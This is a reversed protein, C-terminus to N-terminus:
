DRSGTRKGDPRVVVEGVGRQKLTLKSALQLPATPGGLEFVAAVDDAGGSIAGTGGPMVALTMVPESHVHIACLQAGGRQAIDWLAVTGDEYGCLAFPLPPLASGAHADHQDRPNLCSLLQVATCM